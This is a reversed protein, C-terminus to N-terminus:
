RQSSPFIYQTFFFFFFDHYILPCYLLFNIFTLKGPFTCFIVAVQCLSHTTVSGATIMIYWLLTFCYISLLWNEQTDSSVRSPTAAAQSHLGHQAPRSAESRHCPALWALSPGHLPWRLALVPEVFLEARQQGEGPRTERGEENVCPSSAPFLGFSCILWLIDPETAPQCCLAELLGFRYMRSVTQARVGLRIGRELLSVVPFLFTVLLYVSLSSGFHLAPTIEYDRCRQNQSSLISPSWLRLHCGM